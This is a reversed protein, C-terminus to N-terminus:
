DLLTSKFEPICSDIDHWGPGDTSDTREENSRSCGNMCVSYTKNINGPATFNETESGTNLVIGFPQLCNKGNSSFCITGAVSIVGDPYVAKKGVWDVRIKGKGDVQPGIEEYGAPCAAYSSVCIFFGILGALGYKSQLM